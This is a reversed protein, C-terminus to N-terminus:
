LPHGRPAESDSGGGLDTEAEQKRNRFPIVSVTSSKRLRAPCSNLIFSNKKKLGLLGFGFSRFSVCGPFTASWLGKPPPASTAYFTSRFLVANILICFLQNRKRFIDARM